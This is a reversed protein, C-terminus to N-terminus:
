NGWIDPPLMWKLIGHPSGALREIDIRVLTAKRMNVQLGPSGLFYAALQSLLPEHGAMLIEAEDQRGRIEDWAREPSGSPVLADTKVITGHYGAVAAAIEATQVARVYPSSLILSPAFRAQLAFEAARRIEERGAQTLKREADAGGPRADEATGHRLLHIRM